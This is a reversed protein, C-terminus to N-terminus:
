NIVDKLIDGSWLVKNEGPFSEFEQFWSPDSTPLRYRSKGKEVLLSNEDLRLSIEGPRLKRMLDAFTKGHVGVLGEEAVIAPYNGTFEINSDTARIKLRDGKAELWITRLFAAGTKVPIISSSKQLGEIVDEKIIKIFM